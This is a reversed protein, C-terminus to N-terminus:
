HETGMTGRTRVAHLVIRLAHVDGDCARARFRERGSSRCSLEVLGSVRADQEVRVCCDRAVGDRAWGQPM